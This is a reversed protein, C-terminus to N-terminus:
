NSNYILILFTLLQITNQKNTNKITKKLANKFSLDMFIILDIHEDVVFLYFHMVDEIMYIHEICVNKNM